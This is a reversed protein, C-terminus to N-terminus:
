GKAAALIKDLVNVAATIKAIAAAYSAETAAENEVSAALADLQANLEGVAQNDEGFDAALADLLDGRLHQALNLFSQQEDEGLTTNRAQAFCYAILNSLGTTDITM